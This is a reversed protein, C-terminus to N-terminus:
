SRKILKHFEGLKLMLEFGAEFTNPIEGDLIANRIAEKIDGVIRSPKLDFEKMIHEGTIPPQWNRLSDKEEVDKIKQRVIQFNQLIKRVKEENKSTIDAECLTMLDDVEEGADVILRRVASDTATESTLAIPRLHLMVLKQVYKLKDYLPLKLRRFIEAVMKAGVFDHNHFTWGEQSYRKTSPKGIDHLLAAWRLWLNQTNECINDLVQLTHYFNDKHGKGKVEEVGKLRTIEPLIIDLLGTKELLLFGVSPKASLMIKNLEDTIREQSIIKIREKNTAISELTPEFITFNLQTAFRIARMIRLPDDSFTSDPNLPTRILKNNLDTIGDFPDLLEGFNNQHLSIAMANITFDRRKQDDSLTGNEVIPKRSTQLYSEKRAGVFEIEIDDSIVQATGFNKYITVNTNNGLKEAIQKALEIGSGVVVIDIDKSNRKLFIDRVYGGIVYAEANMSTVVESIIKFIPTDLFEKM